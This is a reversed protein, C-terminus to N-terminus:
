LSSRRSIKKDKNNQSHSVLIHANRLFSLHEEDKEERFAKEERPYFRPAYPARTPPSSLLLSNVLDDITGGTESVNSVNDDDDDNVKSENKAFIQDEQDEDESVEDFVKFVSSKRGQQQQTGQLPSFSSRKLTLPSSFEAKQGNEPAVTESAAEIAATISM